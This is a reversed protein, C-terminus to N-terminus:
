PGHVKRVNEEETAGHSRSLEDTKEVLCSGDIPHLRIAEMLLEADLLGICRGGNTKGTWCVLVTQFDVGMANFTSQLHFEIGFVMMLGKGAHDVTADDSRQKIAMPIPGCGDGQHVFRIVVGHVTQRLVVDVEGGLGSPSVKVTMALGSFHKLVANMNLQGHLSGFPKHSLYRGQPRPCGAVM